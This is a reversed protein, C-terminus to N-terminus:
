LRGEAKAIVSRIVRAADMNGMAAFALKCAELLEPAAAILRCNAWGDDPGLLEVRAIVDNSGHRQVIENCDTMHQWPGPTHQRASAIRTYPLKAM